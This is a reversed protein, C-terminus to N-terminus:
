PTCLSADVFPRWTSRKDGSGILRPYFPYYYKTCKAAMLLIRALSSFKGDDIMCIDGRCNPCAETCDARWFGPLCGRACAGTDKKCIEGGDVPVCNLSCYNECVGGWFDFKCQSCSYFYYQTLMQRLNSGLKM